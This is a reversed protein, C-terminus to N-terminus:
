AKNKTVTKMDYSSDHHAVRDNRSEGGKETPNIGLPLLKSRYPHIREKLTSGIQRSCPTVFLQKQKHFPLFAYCHVLTGMCSMQNLHELLYVEENNLFIMWSHWVAFVGEILALM